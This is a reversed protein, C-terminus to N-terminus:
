EVLVWPRVEALLTPDSYILTGLAKMIRCRFNAQPDELGKLLNKLLKEFHSSLNRNLAFHRIIGM